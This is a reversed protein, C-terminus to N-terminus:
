PHNVKNGDVRSAHLAAPPFGFRVLGFGEVNVSLYHRLAVQSVCLFFCLSFFGPLWRTSDLCVPSMRFIFHSEILNKKKRTVDDLHHCASTYISSKERRAEFGM